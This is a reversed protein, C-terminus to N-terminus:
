KPKGYSSTICFPLFFGTNARVSKPAPAEFQGGGYFFFFPPPPFLESCHAKGSSVWVRNQPPRPTQMNWLRHVCTLLFGFIVLNGKAFEGATSNSTEMYSLLSIRPPVHSFACHWVCGADEKHAQKGPARWRDEAQVFSWICFWAKNRLTNPQCHCAYFM